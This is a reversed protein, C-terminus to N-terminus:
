VRSDIPKRGATNVGGEFHRTISIKDAGRKSGSFVSVPDFSGFYAEAPAASANARELGVGKTSGTERISCGYAGCKQVTEPKPGYYHAGYVAGTTEAQRMRGVRVVEESNKVLWEKTANQHGYPVRSVCNPRYDTIIRGDEMPSAYDSYRNDPTPVTKPFDQKITSSGTFESMPRSGMVSGLTPIEYDQPERFPDAKLTTTIGFM